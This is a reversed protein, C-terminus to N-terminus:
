AMWQGSWGICAALEGLLVAVAFPFRVPDEALPQYPAYRRTLFLSGFYGALRRMRQILIRHRLMVFLACIAGAIMILAIHVKWHNWGAFQMTMWLLKADGARFVKLKWLLFGLALAASGGAVANWLAGGGQLAALITALVVGMLILRNPIKRTKCDSVAAAALCMMWVAWQVWQIKM